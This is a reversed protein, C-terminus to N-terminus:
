SLYIVFYPRVKTSRSIAVGQYLDDYVHEAHNQKNEEFVRNNTMEVKFHFNLQGTFLHYKPLM